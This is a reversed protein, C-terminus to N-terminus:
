RHFTTRALERGPSALRIEEHPRASPILSTSTMRSPADVGKHEESTALNLGLRAVDKWSTLCGGVKDWM